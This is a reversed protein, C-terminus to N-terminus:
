RLVLSAHIARENHSSACWGADNLTELIDQLIFFALSSLVAVGLRALGGTMWVWTHSFATTVAPIQIPFATTVAPITRQTKQHAHACLHDQFMACSESAARWGDELLEKLKDLGAM